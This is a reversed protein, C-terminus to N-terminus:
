TVHERQWVVAKMQLLNHTTRLARHVHSCGPPFGLRWTDAGSQDVIASSLVTRMNPTLFGYAIYM